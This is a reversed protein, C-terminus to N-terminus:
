RKIKLIMKFDIPKSHKSENQPLIIAEKVLGKLADNDFSKTSTIPTHRILKGTGKLLYKPDSLLTGKNLGLNLHNTYIPIVCFIDGLKESLSYVSTLAHTPYLLETANPYAELIYDRLQLYLDILDQNKHKLYYLFDTHLEQGLSM